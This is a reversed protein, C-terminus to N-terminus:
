KTFTEEVNRRGYMVRLVAIEKEKITYFIMYNGVTTSRVSQLSPNSFPYRANREPFYKLDLIAKAIQNYQELAVSPVKLQFAIYQYIQEM